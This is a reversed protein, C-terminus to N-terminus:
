KVESNSLLIHLLERILLRRVHVRPHCLCFGLPSHLGVMVLILIFLFFLLRRKLDEKENKASTILVLNKVREEDMVSADLDGYGLLSNDADGEKANQKTSQMNDRDLEQQMEDIERERLLFAQLNKTIVNNLSPSQPPNTALYRKLYSPDAFEDVNRELLGQFDRNLSFEKANSYEDPIFSKKFETRIKELLVFAELKPIKEHCVMLFWLGMDEKEKIYIIENEGYALIYRGKKLHKIIQGLFEVFNGDNRAYDSLITREYCVCVYHVLNTSNTAM